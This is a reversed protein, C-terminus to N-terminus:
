LVHRVHDYWHVPSSIGVWVQSERPLRRAIEKFQASNVIRLLTSEIIPDAVDSTIHGAEAADCLETHETTRFEPYLFDAPNDNYGQARLQDALGERGHQEFYKISKDNIEVGHDRTEFNVASVFMQPDTWLSIQFIRSDERGGHEAVYADVAEDFLSLVQQEYLQWDIQPDSM